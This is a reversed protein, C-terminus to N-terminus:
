IDSSQGFSARMEALQHSTCLGTENLFYLIFHAFQTDVGMDAIAPLNQIIREMDEKMHVSMGIIAPLNYEIALRLFRIEINDPDNAVVDQIQDNYKRIQTLKKFPSWYEQALLAESVAQYALMTSENSEVHHMLAYFDSSKEPNLVAQHFAIRVEELSQAHTILSPIIIILFIM